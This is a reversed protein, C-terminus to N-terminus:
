ATKKEYFKIIYKLTKNMTPNCVGTVSSIDKKTPKKLHQKHKVVYCIVAAVVSKPAVFSLEEECDHHVKNCRVVYKYPLKLKGVFRAFMTTPELSVQLLSHFKTNEIADRFLPEGKTIETEEIDMIAAVEERCRPFVKKLVHM